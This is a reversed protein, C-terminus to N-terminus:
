TPQEIEVNLEKNDRSSGNSSGSNGFDIDSNENDSDATESGDGLRCGSAILMADWLAAQLLIESGNTM